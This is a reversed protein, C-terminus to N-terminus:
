KGVNTANSLNNMQKISASAVHNAFSDTIFYILAERVSEDWEYNDSNVPDIEVDNFVLNVQTVIKAFKPIRIYELVVGAINVPEIQFTKGIEKAIPKTVTPKLGKINSKNRQNFRDGDFLRILNKNIKKVVEDEDCATDKEVCDNNELTLSYMNDYYYYDEPKEFRGESDLSKKVETLLPSLWDKTKQNSFSIPLKQGSVDGTLWDLLRLEGRKSMRNYMNYDLFGNEDKYVSDRAVDEYLEQIKIM